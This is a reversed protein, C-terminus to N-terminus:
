KYITWKTWKSNTAFSNSWESTISIIHLFSVAFKNLLKNLFLYSSPIMEVQLCFFFTVQIMLATNHIIWIAHGNLKLYILSFYNGKRNFCFKTFLRKWCISLYYKLLYNSLQLRDFNIFWHVFSHNILMLFM